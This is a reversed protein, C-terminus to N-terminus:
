TATYDQQGVLGNISMTRSVLKIRCPVPRSVVVFTLLTAAGSVGVVEDVANSALMGLEPEPLTAPASDAPRVEESARAQEAAM